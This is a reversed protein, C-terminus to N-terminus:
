PRRHKAMVTDYSVLPVRGAKYANWRKRAEEAWIRDIAPDPKVLEELIADVLQLKEKDPLNRIEAALKELPKAM